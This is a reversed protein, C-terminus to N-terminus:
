YGYEKLQNRFVRKERNRDYDKKSKHVKTRLEPNMGPNLKGKRNFFLKSRDIKGVYFNNRKKMQVPMSRKKLM